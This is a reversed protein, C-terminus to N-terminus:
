RRNDLLDGLKTRYWEQFKHTYEEQKLELRNSSKKTFTISILPVLGLAVFISAFLVFILTFPISKIFQGVIGSIFFLPAFVAVTAMTGAILPWAYEKLAAVAAEEKTAFIRMRTHIAETVVIGSDVLIGIALILAFLSVFNLTNGSQLLGIFAILFSLPISVAAVIAERWGITLLLTIMVLTITELGVKTLDTLSTKVE